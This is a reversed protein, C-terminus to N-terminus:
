KGGAFSREFTYNGIVDIIGIVEFPMGEELTGPAQMSPVQNQGEVSRDQGSTNRLDAM